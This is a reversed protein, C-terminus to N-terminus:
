RTKFCSFTTNIGFAKVGGKQYALFGICPVEILLSMFMVCIRFCEVSFDLALLRTVCKWQLGALICKQRSPRKPAIRDQDFTWAAKYAITEREFESFRGIINTSAKTESIYYSRVIWFM